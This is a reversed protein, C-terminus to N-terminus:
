NILEGGWLRRLFEPVPLVRTAGWNAAKPGQYVGYCRVKREGLEVRIRNLGRNFRKDWRTSAKIEVALFGARTECLVDVEVGDHTRWFNLPYRIRRYALYSRIEHLVFTELLPGQEEPSPPYAVRESLARALGCDFLYFKPHAVQKTARKLKWPHLWFGLLTDELIEFYNQVTQRSVAADRSIASVNTVRANQRAAVELFRSFNGIDRTLAEAQVEERLYTEAYATLYAAPDDGTVVLPLTGFALADAVPYDFAMEASTLPFMHEVVARGALLNTGGRRLKRASSGSLVFRLKKKEILRHVENLLAPIKQIEDIVVWTGAPADSTERYLLSPDRSLRLLESTNLLDYSVADAFESEIWTSKGTARPGFLFFSGKPRLLSRAFM